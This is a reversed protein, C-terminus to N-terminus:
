QMRAVVRFGINYASDGPSQRWNATKRCDYAPSSCGGGLVYNMPAYSQNVDLVIEWVNGHMDYIGWSNRLYSGVIATGGGIWCGADTNSGGNHKYRGVEAMNPCPEDVGYAVTCNKGSNFDTETGAQCIYRWQARGPLDFTIGTKARIRGLFSEAGIEGWQAVYSMNEGRIRNYSVKEVPRHEYAGVNYFYSPKDGMVLEWQRQTIEFVGAYVDEGLYAEAAPDGGARIRRLVLKSTKYEDAWEGAPPADLSSVPYHTAETGGSLDIVLYEFGALAAEEAYYANIRVQMNTALNNRWDARTKWRFQRKGAAVTETASHSYDGTITKFNAEGISVGNTLIDARIIANTGSFEYDVVVDRSALDQKFSVSKLDIADEPRVIEAAAQFPGAIVVALFSAYFTQKKM